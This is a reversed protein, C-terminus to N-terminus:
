HAASALLVAPAVPYAYGAMLDIAGFTLLISAVLAVARTKISTKM